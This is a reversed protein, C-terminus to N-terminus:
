KSAKSAAGAPPVTDAAESLSEATTEADTEGAQMDGSMEVNELTFRFPQANTGAGGGTMVIDAKSIGMLSIETNIDSIIAANMIDGENIESVVGIFITPRFSFVAKQGPAINTKTAVLNGSRYVLANVSGQQLNNLLSIETQSNGPGQYKLTHGSTSLVVEFQDGNAAPLQPMYNGWSDSAGMTCGTAFQFPHSSGQGCNKIVKWAVAIENVSTSVNKQFIVVQSNNVDNSKNIFNLNIANM